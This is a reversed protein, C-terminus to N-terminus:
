LAMLIGLSNARLSQSDNLLEAQRDFGLILKAMMKGLGGRSGGM